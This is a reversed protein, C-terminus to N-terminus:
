GSTFKRIFDLSSCTSVCSFRQQSRTSMRGAPGALRRPLDGSLADEPIHGIGPGIRGGSSKDASDDARMSGSMSTTPCRRASTSRKGQAVSARRASLRSPAYPRGPVGYVRDGMIGRGFAERAHARIQHTRGTLPQFKVLTRGGRVALRDWRTIAEAIRGSTRRGNEGGPM